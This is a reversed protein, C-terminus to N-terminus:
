FQVNIVQFNFRPLFHQSRGVHCTLENAVRKKFAATTRSDKVYNPLKNYERALGFYVGQRGKNTRVSNLHINNITRTHHNHVVANPELHFNNKIKNNLIKFILTNRAIYTLDKIQLNGTLKYIKKTRELRNFNFLSKIAKNQLSQVSNTIKGSCNSWIPLAYQIRSLIHTHYLLSAIKKPFNCRSIAGVLAAINKAM